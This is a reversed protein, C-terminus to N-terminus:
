QGLTNPDRIVQNCLPLGQTQVTRHAPHEPLPPLTLAGSYAHQVAVQQGWLHSARQESTPDSVEVLYFESLLKLPSIQVLEKILVFCVLKPALKGRLFKLSVAGLM